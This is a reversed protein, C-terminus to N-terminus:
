GDDHLEYGGFSSCTIKYLLGVYTKLILNIYINQLYPLQLTAREGKLIVSCYM